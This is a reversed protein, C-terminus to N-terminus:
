CPICGAEHRGNYGNCLNHGDKVLNTYARRNFVRVSSIGLAKRIKGAEQFVKTQIDKCESSYLAAKQFHYLAHALRNEKVLAQGKAMPAEYRTCDQGYGGVSFCWFLLITLCTYKNM